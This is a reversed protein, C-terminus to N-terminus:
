KSMSFKRSNIRLNSFAQSLSRAPQLGQWSCQHISRRPDNLNNLNVTHPIKPCKDGRVIIIKYTKRWIRAKLGKMKGAMLLSSFLKPLFLPRSHYPATHSVRCNEEEALKQVLEKAFATYSKGACTREGASTHPSTRICPKM